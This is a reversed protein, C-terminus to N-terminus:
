VIPKTGIAWSPLDGWANQSHEWTGTHGVTRIARQLIAIAKDTGDISNAPVAITIKGFKVGFYEIWYRLRRREIISIRDALSKGALDTKLDEYAILDTSKCVCRASKKAWEERQRSLKFCLKELKAKTKLYSRSQQKLRNYKRRLQRKLKLIRRVDIASKLSPQSHEINSYPLKSLNLAIARGTPLIDEEIQNEVAIFFRCYYGNAKRVLSIRKILKDEYFRLEHTGILKLKGIKKKDSFTIHKCTTRDLKWGTSKYEVSRVNNKFRPYGIRPAPDSKARLNRRRKCNNLFRCIASWAREAASQRAMSNLEKAFEFEEAM